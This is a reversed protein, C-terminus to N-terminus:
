LYWGNTDKWFNVGQGDTYIMGSPDVFLFSTEFEKWPAVKLYASLIYDGQRQRPIIKQKENWVGTGVGDLTTLTITYSNNRVVGYKGTPYYTDTSKIAQNNLNEIPIKYYFYGKYFGDFQFNKLDDSEMPETSGAAYLTGSPSFFLKEGGAHVIGFDNADAPLTHAADKYYTQGTDAIVADFINDATYFVGKYRFINANTASYKYPDPYGGVPTFTLRAKILVHTVRPYLENKDPDLQLIKADATNEFCFLSDGFNADGIAEWSTYDLADTSAANLISIPYTGGENLGYNQDKAWNSRYVDPSNWVWSSFYDDSGWSPDIKKVYYSGRNVANLGWGLLDVKAVLSDCPTVAPVPYPEDSAGTVKVKAALREIYVNLPYKRANEEDDFIYLSPIETECMEMGSRSMYTSSAMLFPYVSAAQPDGNKDKYSISVQDALKWSGSRIKGRLESLSKGAMDVAANDEINALVLMRHPRFNLEVVVAGARNEIPDHEDSSLRQNFGTVSRWGLYRGSADFFYLSVSSVLSQELDGHSFRTINDFSGKTSTGSSGAPSFVFAIYCNDVSELCEAPMRTDYICGAALASILLLIAATKRM